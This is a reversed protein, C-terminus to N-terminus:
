SDPNVILYIEWLDPNRAEQLFFWFIWSVSNKCPLLWHSDRKTLIHARDRRAQGRSYLILFYKGKHIFWTRILAWRSNLSICALTQNLLGVHARSPLFGPVFVGSNLIRCWVPFGGKGALSMWDRSDCFRLLMPSIPALIRASCDGAEGLRGYQEQNPLM